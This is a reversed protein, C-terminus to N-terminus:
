HGDAYETVQKFSMLNQLDIDDAHMINSAAHKDYSGLLQKTTCIDPNM